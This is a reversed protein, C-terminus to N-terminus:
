NSLIKSYLELIDVEKENNKYKSLKQIDEPDSINNSLTVLSYKRVKPNKNELLKFLVSNISPPITLISSTKVPYKYAQALSKHQGRPGAGDVYGFFIIKDQFLKISFSNPIKSKGNFIEKHCNLKELVMGSKADFIYFFEKIMVLLQQDYIEFYNAYPYKRNQVKLDIFQLTKGTDSNVALLKNGDILLYIINNFRQVRISFYENNIESFLTNIEPIYKKLIENGTHTNLINLEGEKNFFCIMDVEEKSEAIKYIDSNSGTHKWLHNGTKFDYTTIESQDKEKDYGYFVINNDNQEIIKYHSGKHNPFTKRWLVEKTKTDIAIFAKEWPLALKGDSFAKTFILISIPIKGQVDLKKDFYVTNTITSERPSILTNSVEKGTEYDYELLRFLLGDYLLPNELNQHEFTTLHKYETINYWKEKGTTNDILSITSKNNISVLLMNALVADRCYGLSKIEEYNHNYTDFLWEISGTKNNRKSFEFHRDFYLTNDFEYVTPFGDIKTESHKWVEKYETEDDFLNEPIQINHIEKAVKESILKNSSLKFLWYISESTIKESSIKDVVISYLKKAKENDKKEFYADALEVFCVLQETGKKTDCLKEAETYEGKDILSQVTQSRTIIPSFVILTFTFAILYISNKQKMNEVKQQYTL